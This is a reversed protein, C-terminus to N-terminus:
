LPANGGDDSDDTAAPAGQFFAQEAASKASGKSPEEDEAKGKGKGKGRGRGRTEDEPDALLAKMAKRSEPGFIGDVQLGQAAQFARVAADTKPGFVGDAPGPDFGARALRRQLREVGEDGLKLM